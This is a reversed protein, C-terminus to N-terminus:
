RVMAAACSALLFMVSHGATAMSHVALKDANRDAIVTVQANSCKAYADLHTLGMMGLGIVGVRIM